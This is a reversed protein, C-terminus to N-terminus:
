DRDPNIQPVNKIQGNIMPPPDISPLKRFQGSQIQDLIKASLEDTDVTVNFKRIRQKLVSHRQRLKDIAETLNGQEQKLENINAVKIRERAANAVYGKIVRQKGELEIIRDMIANAKHDLSDALVLNLRGADGAQAATVWTGPKPSKLVFHPLERPTQHLVVVEAQARIGLKDKAKIEAKIDPSFRLHAVASLETEIEVPEFSQIFEFKGYPMNLDVTPNHGRVYHLAQNNLKSQDFAIGPRVLLIELSGDSHSSRHKVWHNIKEMQANIGKSDGKLNEFVGLVIQETQPQPRPEPRVSVNIHQGTRIVNFDVTHNKHHDIADVLQQTTEFRQDGLQLLIDHVEIGADAAPSEPVVEHVALGYELNLQSKTIETIPECRVGIWFHKEDVAFSWQVGEADIINPPLDHAHIGPVVQIASVGRNESDNQRKELESVVRYVISSGNGRFEYVQNTSNKGDSSQQTVIIRRQQGDASEDQETQHIEIRKTIDDIKLQQANLEITTAIFSVLAAMASVLTLKVLQGTRNSGPLFDVNMMKAAMQNTM